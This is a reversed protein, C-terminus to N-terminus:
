KRLGTEHMAQVAERYFEHAREVPIDYFKAVGWKKQIAKMEAVKGAGFLERMLVLGAEKAEAPSMNPDDLGMDEVQDGAGGNPVPSTLDEPTPTEQQQQKAAKAARAKAAAEQRGAKVAEARAQDDPVPNVKTTPADFTPSPLIPEVWDQPPPPPPSSPLM